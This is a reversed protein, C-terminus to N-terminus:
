ADHIEFHGSLDREIAAIEALIEHATLDQRLLLFGPDPVKACPVRLSILSRSRLIFAHSVPRDEDYQESWLLDQLWLMTDFLMTPRRDHFSVQAREILIEEERPIERCSGRAIEYYRRESYTPQPLYALMEPTKTMIGAVGIADPSLAKEAIRMSGRWEIEQAISEPAPGLIFEHPGKSAPFRMDKAVM